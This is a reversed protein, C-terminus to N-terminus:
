LETLATSMLAAAAAATTSPLKVIVFRKQVSRYYFRTVAMFDLSALPCNSPVKRVSPKRCLTLGYGSYSAMRPPPDFLSCDIMDDATM